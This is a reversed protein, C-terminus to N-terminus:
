SELFLDAVTKGCKRCSGGDFEFEHDCKRAFLRKIWSKKKCKHKSSGNSIVIYREGCNTCTRWHYNGLKM